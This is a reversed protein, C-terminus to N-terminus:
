DHVVQPQQEAAAIDAKHRYDDWSVGTHLGGSGGHTQHPSRRENVDLCFMHRRFLLRAM